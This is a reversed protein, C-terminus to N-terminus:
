RQGLRGAGGVLGVLITGLLLGLGAAIEEEGSGQLLHGRRVDLWVGIRIMILVVAVQPLAVLLARDANTAVPWHWNVVFAVVPALALLSLALPDIRDPPDFLMPALAAATMVAPLGAALLMVRAPVTAPRM